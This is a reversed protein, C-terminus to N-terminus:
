NNSASGATVAPRSSNSNDTFQRHGTVHEVFIDRSWQLVESCCLKRFKNLYSKSMHKSLFKDNKPDWSGLAGVIIPIISAKCGNVSYHPILHAYKDLKEQRARDFSEYRNDFPICVDIIFVEKGIQVVLDPRKGLPGVAQNKALIVGRTSLAREIKDVVVNHRLTWARSRGKCHNLVHPLTELDCEDCGRCSTDGNKKWPQNGRLALLDLRASGFFRYVAFSTYDGTFLFHSSAKSKAVCEMAKGQKPCLLRNSRMTRLRDRIAFLVKKRESAQISLDEMKLKPIGEEFQWYVGLRSSAIRACTWTNSYANDNDNFTSSLYAELDEDTVSSKRMRAKVVSSLHEFAMTAIRTDKSTLLKFASDIRNLECEESLIPIAYCGYKRHGYLYDNSAREPLSLTQKIGKRLAKDIADWHKKAFQSTRMPFQFASYIFSKLADIRMWPALGSEMVAKAAAYLDNLSQFNPCPNFGVPKGLFKHFDGEQISPLLNGRVYFPTNRSGTPKVGSLHFSVSKRPNLSLNLASFLVDIRDLMVQLEQPSKAILCVDDAFALISHESNTGQIERIVPDICIDFLIGSIPCGQKVGSMIPIYETNGSESLVKTSSNTYIDTIVDVFAPGVACAELADIIAAHPLSGFANSIDIFAVCLDKHSARARELSRQLVYNHEVVGDFPTFGKQCPSLVSYKDIFSTLRAALCKTFLKYITSSLAIPRWNGPDSPDGDKAILITTSLKWSPPVKRFHVCANFVSCLFSGSDEISKWHYYTLRDPGASTNEAEKLKKGIEGVTFPSELVPSRNETSPVYVGGSYTSHEWATTFYPQLISPNIKCFDGENGTILRVARKRNKKFLPQILKPEKPDIRTPRGRQSAFAPPPSVENKRVEEIANGVFECFLHFNDDTAEESLLTLISDTFPKLYSDNGDEGTPPPTLINAAIADADVSAPTTIVETVGDPAPVQPLKGRRRSKKPPIINPQVGSKAIESKKHSIEHNRLGVESPFSESCTTRKLCPHNSPNKPIYQFCLSCWYYTKLIRIKHDRNLHRVLDGRTSYWSKTLFHKTCQLETCTLGGSFPFLLNISNGIRCNAQPISDPVPSIKPGQALPVTPTRGSPPPDDVSREEGSPPPTNGFGVDFSFVKPGVSAPLAPINNASSSPVPFSTGHYSMLHSHLEMENKGIFDCLNCSFLPRRNMFRSPDDIKALFAPCRACHIDLHFAFTFRMDCGSCVHGPVPPLRRSSSSSNYSKAIESCSPKKNDLTALSNGLDRVASNKRMPGCTKAHDKLQGCIVEKFSCKQCTHKRDIHLLLIDEVKANDKTRVVFGCTPCNRCPSTCPPGLSVDVNQCKHGNLAETSSCQFSCKGCNIINQDASPSVPSAPGSPHMKNMHSVLIEKSNAVYRCSMCKVPTERKPLPEKCPHQLFIAKNVFHGKCTLCDYGDPSNLENSSVGVTSLGLRFLCMATTARSCRLQVLSRKVSRAPYPTIKRKPPDRLTCLSESMHLTPDQRPYCRKASVVVFLTRSISFTKYRPLLKTRSLQLPLFILHLRLLNSSNKLLFTPVTGEKWFQAISLKELLHTSTLNVIEPLNPSLASGINSNPTIPVNNTNSSTGHSPSPPEEDSFQILNHRSKWANHARKMHLRLGGRKKAVFDCSSCKLTVKESKQCEHLGFLSANQFSSRCTSCTYASDRTSPHSDVKMNLGSEGIDDNKTSSSGNLNTSSSNEVTMKDLCEHVMFQLNTQFVALCTPCKTNSKVSGSQVGSSSSGKQDCESKQAADDVSLSFTSEMVELKRIASVTVDNIVNVSPLMVTPTHVTNVPVLDNAYKEIQKDIEAYSACTLHSYESSNMSKLDPKSEDEVGDVDSSLNMPADQLQSSNPGQSSSAVQQVGCSRKPSLDLPLVPDCITSSVDESFSRLPPVSPSRNVSYDSSASVKELPSLVLKATKRERLQQRTRSSIPSPSLLIDKIAVFCNKPVRVLPKALPKPPSILISNMGSPAPPELLSITEINSCNSM